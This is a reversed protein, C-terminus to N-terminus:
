PLFPCTMPADVKVWGQDRSERGPRLWLEVSSGGSLQSGPGQRRPDALRLCVNGKVNWAPAPVEAGTLGSVGAEPRPSGVRCALFSWFWFIFDYM